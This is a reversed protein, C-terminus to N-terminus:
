VVRSQRTFPDQALFTDIVRLMRMESQKSFSEAKNLLSKRGPAGTTNLINGRLCVKPVQGIPDHAPRLIGRLLDHRAQPLRTHSPSPKAASSAAWPNSASFCAFTFTSHEKKAKSLWSLILKSRGPSLYKDTAGPESAELPVGSM